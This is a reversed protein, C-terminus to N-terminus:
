RPPFHTSHLYRNFDPLSDHSLPVEIDLRNYSNITDVINYEFLLSYM